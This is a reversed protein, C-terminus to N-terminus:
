PHIHLIGECALLRRQSSFRRQNPYGIAVSFNKPVQTNLVLGLVRQDGKDSRASRRCITRSEFAYFLRLVRNPDENPVDDPQPPSERLRCLLEHSSRWFGADKIKDLRPDNADILQLLEETTIGYLAEYVRIDSQLQEVTIEEARELVATRM